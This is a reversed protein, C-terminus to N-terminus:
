QQESLIQIKYLFLTGGSWLLLCLNFDARGRWGAVSKRLLAEWPAPLLVGLSSAALISTLWAFVGDLAHGGAQSCPSLSIVPSTFAM